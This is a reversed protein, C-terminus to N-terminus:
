NGFSKHDIIQDDYAILQVGGERMRVEGGRAIIEKNSDSM